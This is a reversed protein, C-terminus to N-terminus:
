STTSLQAAIQLICLGEVDNKWKIGVIIEYLNPTTMGDPDRLSLSTFYGTWPGLATLPLATISPVIKKTRM